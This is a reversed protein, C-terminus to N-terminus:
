VEFSFLINCGVSRFAALTTNENVSVSYGRSFNEDCLYSIVKMPSLDKSVVIVKNPVFNKFVGNWSPPPQNIIILGSPFVSLLDSDMSSVENM